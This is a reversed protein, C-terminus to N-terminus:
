KELEKQAEQELVRTQRLMNSIMSKIQAKLNEDINLMQPEQHV